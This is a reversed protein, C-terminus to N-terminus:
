FFFLTPLEYDFLKFLMGIAQAVDKSKQELIDNDLTM